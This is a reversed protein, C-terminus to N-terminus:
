VGNLKYKGEFVLLGIFDDFDIDGFDVDLVTEMIATAWLVELTFSASIWQAEFAFGLVDTGSTPPEPILLSGALNVVVPPDDSVGLGDDERATWSWTGKQDWGPHDDFEDEFSLASFTSEKITASFSSRSSHAPLTQLLLFRRFGQRTVQTIADTRDLETLELTIVDRKFRIFEGTLEVTIEEFPFAENSGVETLVGKLSRRAVGKATRLPTVGPM